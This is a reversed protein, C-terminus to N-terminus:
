NLSPVISLSSSLNLAKTYIQRIGILEESTINALQTKVPMDIDLDKIKSLLKAYRLNHIDEIIPSIENM